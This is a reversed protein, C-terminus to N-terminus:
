VQSGASAYVKRGTLWYTIMEGKGKVAIADRQEFVYKDKLLVYTAATVQISGATGMSEM